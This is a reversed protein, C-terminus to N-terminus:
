FWKGIVQFINMGKGLAPLIVFILFFALIALVVVLEFIIKGAYSWVAKKNMTSM